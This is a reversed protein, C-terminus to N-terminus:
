KSIVFICGFIGYKWIKLDIKKFIKENKPRYKPTVFDKIEYFIRFRRVSFLRVRLGLAALGFVSL